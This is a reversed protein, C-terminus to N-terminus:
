KDMPCVVRISLDKGIQIFDKIGPHIVLWMGLLTYKFNSIGNGFKLPAVM